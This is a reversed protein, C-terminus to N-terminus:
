VPQTTCATSQPSAEPKPKEAAQRLQDDFKQKRLLIRKAEIFTIYGALFNDFKQIEFIGSHGQILDDTTQIVVIPSYPTPYTNWPKGDRNRTLQVGSFVLDETFDFNLVKPVNNNLDIELLSDLANPSVLALNHTRQRDLDGLADRFLASQYRDGDARTPPDFPALVARSLPFAIKRALDNSASFVVLQPTQTSPFQLQRYLADIQAFQYAELAPNLLINLDGFSDISERVPNRDANSKYEPNLSDTMETSREILSYELSKQISRLLM